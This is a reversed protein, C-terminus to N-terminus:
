PARTLWRGHEEAGRVNNRSEINAGAKVLLGAEAVHGGIVANALPSDGDADKAELAAGAAVLAELTETRGHYAALGLPTM